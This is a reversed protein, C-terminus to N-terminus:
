AVLMAPLAEQWFSRMEELDNLYASRMRQSVKQGDMSNLKALLDATSSFRLLEPLLLYESYEAWYARAQMGRVDAPTRAADLFPDFPHVADVAARDSLPDPLNYPYPLLRINTIHVLNRLLSLDPIVLPMRMKFLQRLMCLEPSWPVIVVANFGAIEKFPIVRGAQPVIQYPFRPGAMNQASSIFATEYKLRGRSHILIQGGHSRPKTPSYTANVWVSMPRLFPVQVGTQWFFQEARFLSEAAVLAHGRMVNNLVKRVGQWYSDVVGNSGQVVDEGVNLLVPPGFYVVCPAGPFRRDVWIAELFNTTIVLDPQALKGDQLQFLIRRDRPHLLYRKELVHTRRKRGRRISGWRLQMSRRQSRRRRRHRTGPRAARRAVQLTRRQQRAECLQDM